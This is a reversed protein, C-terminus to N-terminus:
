LPLRTISQLFTRLRDADESTMATFQVGIGFGPRSNVVKGTVWLKSEKIWLGVKISTGVKLPMPMEVFCGGLSLDSAKGWIPAAQGDPHLEVSNTSKLRPHLRREAAKSQRGYSDIKPEPLAVTWLAKRPDNNQLGIQGQAASGIQGTWKVRFRGKNTGHSLGIIEGVKIRAQVGQLRAGERSVDITFVNESFPRGDQDTGFIRVPLRIQTRPERRQGM